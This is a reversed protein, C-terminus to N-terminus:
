PDDWCDVTTPAGLSRVFGRLDRMSLQDDGGGRGSGFPLAPEALMGGCCFCVLIQGVKRGARDLYQFAHHPVFCAAEDEVRYPPVFGIRRIRMLHREFATREAPTLTRRIAPTRPQPPGNTSAADVVLVVSAAEPYPHVANILTVYPAGRAPPEIRSNCATLAISIAALLLSPRM